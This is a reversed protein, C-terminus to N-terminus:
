GLGAEKLMAEVELSGEHLGAKFDGILVNCFRGQQTASLWEDSGKPHADAVVKANLARQRLFSIVDEREAKRTDSM